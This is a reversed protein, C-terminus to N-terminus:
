AAPIVPLTQRAAALRRARLAGLGNWVGVVAGGAAGIGVLIRDTGTPLGILVGLAAGLVAGGVTEAGLLWLGGVAGSVRSVVAYTGRRLGGVVAGGVKRVGGALRQAPVALNARPRPWEGHFAFRYVAYVAYGVLSLALVTAFVGAMSVVVTGLLALGLVRGVLGAVTYTHMM